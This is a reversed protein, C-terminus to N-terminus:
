KDSVAEVSAHLAEIFLRETETFRWGKRFILVDKQRRGGGACPKQVLDFRALAEAPMPSVWMYAGPVRTLLELQSGREYLYITRGDARAEARARAESVPMAPAARDGHVLEVYALLAAEDVCDLGALPHTRSMLARGSFTFVPESVLANDRLASSFYPEAEADFRVVAIDDVGDVVSRIAHATSDERYDLEYASTEGLSRVFSAFACSIYSARPVCVSFRVRADEAPRCLSEMEEIQSLVSHACRLFDRGKQTPVVGKATRAFIMVGLDAELDRIAKSLNPQNMYLNEAAKSISGTREVEVAYRLQQISNM